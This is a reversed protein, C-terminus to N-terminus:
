KKEGIFLQLHMIRMLETLFYSVLFSLLSIGPVLIYTEISKNNLIYFLFYIIISHFLYIGFSNHSINELYCFNIKSKVMLSFLYIVYIGLLAYLLSPFFCFFFNVMGLMLIVLPCIRRFIRNYLLSMYGLSFWLLYYLSSDIQFYPLKGGWLKELVFLIASIVLLSYQPLKYRLVVMRFLYFMLFVNFLMWVYWLHRSDLSLIIGKIFYPLFDRFGFGCMFPLVWLIAFAFYPIMLRKAKNKVFSSFRQYSSKRISVFAFTMGSIFVFLPMHFSYIVRTIIGMVGTDDVQPILGDKTYMRTVHGLVVLIIGIVKMIDLEVVRTRNEVKELEM